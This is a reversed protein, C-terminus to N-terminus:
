QPFWRRDVLILGFSMRRMVPLHMPYLKLMYRLERELAHNLEEIVVAAGGESIVMGDREKDYPRSAKEPAENRKFSNGPRLLYVHCLSFHPMQAEWSLWM